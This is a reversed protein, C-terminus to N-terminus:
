IRSLPTEPAERSPTPTLDRIRRSDRRLRNVGMRLRNRGARRVRCPAERLSDREDAKRSNHRDSSVSLIVRFPHPTPIRPRRGDISFRRGARLATLRLFDISRFVVVSKYVLQAILWSSINEKM